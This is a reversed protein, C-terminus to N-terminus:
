LEGKGILAKVSQELGDTLETGLFVLWVKKANEITPEVEQEELERLICRALVTTDFWWILENVHSENWTAM